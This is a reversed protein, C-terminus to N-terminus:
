NQPDADMVDMLAALASTSPADFPILWPELVGVALPESPDGGRAYVALVDDLTAFTGGHGYPATRPLGRLTPTKFAGLMSPAAAAIPQSTMSDSFAGHRNFPSAFLLPVGDIRGRDPAIDVRGTPFRLAHFADDTLRPGYHCQACGVTFFAHLGDKQTDTLATTDGAVYRDVANSQVRIAREHAAIAKGVNSFVRNIARQDDTSMGEWAPDMPHGDPPFRQTDSLAPLAGFTAEYAVAHHEAIWHAVRLRSSGMENPAEIPGLAQSWLSDARGDWFDWPSHSALSISPANRDTKGVGMSNALGDTYAKAPSHCTLCAVKGNASFGTESFLAEGLSAALPDDGHANSDDLPPAGPTAMDRMMDVEWPAFRGDVQTTKTPPPAAAGDLKALATAIRDSLKTTDTEDVVDVVNMTRRDILISIPLTMRAPLLTALSFNPDAVLTRDGTRVIWKRFSALDGLTAPSNDDNAIVADILEVRDSFAAGLLERTHEAQWRCTGCWGAVVRVLLVRANSACPDFYESLAISSQENSERLGAFRLSAVSAAEDLPSLDACTKAAPPADASCGHVSCAIALAVILPRSAVLTSHVRQAGQRGRALRRSPM